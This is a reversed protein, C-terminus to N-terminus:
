TTKKARKIPLTSVIREHSWGYYFRDILTQASIKTIEAWESVCKKQGNVTLIVNRRTNRAQEKRSGWRCNDKEYNGNNDKRELTMGDPREGMDELFLDFSNWRPCIKIGRGGYRFFYKYNPNNVRKKMERWSIYTSSSSMGHTSNFHNM